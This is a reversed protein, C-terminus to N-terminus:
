ENKADKTRKKRSQNGSPVDGVVIVEKRESSIELCGIRSIMFWSDPGQDIEVNKDAAVEFAKAIDALAFRHTILREVPVRGSHILDISCEFDKKLGSYAYCSSGLLRIEKDVVERLSVEVPAQFGGALIM